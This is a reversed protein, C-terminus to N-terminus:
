LNLVTQEEPKELFTTSQRMGERVFAYDDDSAPFFGSIKLEALVSKDKLALLGDRLTAYLGDDLGARAIWPKTVNDFAHLVRISGDKVYRNFTSEKIAGADFDGISVSKLVKDHRGLYEYGVLDKAYIGAKVLQAQVLYRGITSNPSGIAFRTGNLDALTQFPSENRVIIVGRFRRKGKRNEMALLRIQENRDKSLAYSAPGFRVFDVDGDVLADQAQQYTKYIKLKISMPKGIQETMYGELYELVPAFKKYMVTAKDSQYVGFTISQSQATALCPMTLAFISAFLWHFVNGKFM